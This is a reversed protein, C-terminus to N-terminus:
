NSQRVKNEYSPELYYQTIVTIKSGETITVVELIKNGYVRRRLKRKRGTKALMQTM